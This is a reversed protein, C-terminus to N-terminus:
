DVAVEAFDVPDVEKVVFQWYHGHTLWPLYNAPSLWDQGLIQFRLTLYAVRFSNGDVLVDEPVHEDVLGVM